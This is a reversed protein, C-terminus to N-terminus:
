YTFLEDVRKGIQESLAFLETMKWDALGKRKRSFQVESLPIKAALENQTIGTRRLYVTIADDVNQTFKELSTM